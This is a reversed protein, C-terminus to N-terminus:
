AYSLAVFDGWTFRLELEDQRKHIFASSTGERGDAVPETWVLSCPASTEIQQLPLIKQLPYHDLTCHILDDQEADPKSAIPSIAVHERVPLITILRIEDTATNLAHYEM